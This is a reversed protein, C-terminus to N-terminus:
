QQFLKLPVEDEKVGSGLHYLIFLREMSQLEDKQFVFNYINSGKWICGGKSCDLSWRSPDGVIKSAPLVRAVEEGDKNRISLAVAWEQAYKLERIEGSLVLVATQQLATLGAYSKPKLSRAQSLCRLYVQALPPQLEVSLRAIRLKDLPDLKASAQYVYKLGQVLGFLLDKKEGNEYGKDCAQNIRQEDPIFVDLWTAAQGLSLGVLAGLFVTFRKLVM